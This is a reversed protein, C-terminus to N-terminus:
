TPTAHREARRSHWCYVVPYLIVNYPVAVTVVRSAVSWNQCDKGYVADYLLFVYAGLVLVLGIISNGGILSFFSILLLMSVGDLVRDAKKYLLAFLVVAAIGVACFKGLAPHYNYSAPVRMPLGAAIFAVAAVMSVFWAQTSRQTLFHRMPADEKAICRMANNPTNRQM